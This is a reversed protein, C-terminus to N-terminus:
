NTTIISFSINDFILYIFLSSLITKWIKKRVKLHGREHFVWKSLETFFQENGSKEHRNNWFCFFSNALIKKASVIESFDFKLHSLCDVTHQAYHLFQAINGISVM